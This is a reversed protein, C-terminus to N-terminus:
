EATVNQEKRIWLFFLERSENGSFSKKKRSALIDWPWASMQGEEAEQFNLVTWFTSSCLNWDFLRNFSRFLDIKLNFLFYNKIWNWNESKKKKKMNPVDEEDRSSTKEKFKLLCYNKM